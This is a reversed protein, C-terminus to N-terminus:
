FACYDYAALHARLALEEDVAPPPSAGSALQADIARTLDGVDGPAFTRSALEALGGVRAAVTPVGLQSALSLVGSQSAKDHPAVVLDAAAIAATFEALAVFEVRAAVEVGLRRALRSCDEWAGRDQGVVALRRGSPWSSASQVLLDLRREPRIWGAFLVVDDADDAGWEGRWRQRQAPTPAPVLQVLPSFHAGIGMAALRAVDAWGHVVVAHPVRLALRLLGGDIRGRRSFTDHPSYVVRRRALRAAGLTLVSLAGGASIGELHLVADAGVVRRLHPLTRTALRAAILMSRRASRREDRPWWSCACLELGDAAMPEHQHGTHLVVRLGRRGLLQGLRCAHQFVGSYGSPELLHIQPAAGL